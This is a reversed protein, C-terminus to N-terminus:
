ESGRLCVQFKRETEMLTNKVAAEVETTEIKSEMEIAASFDPGPFNSKITVAKLEMAKLCKLVEIMSEVADSPNEVRFKINSLWANKGNGTLKDQVEANKQQLEKKLGELDRLHNGATQVISNMNAKTGRPLLAHLEMCSQKMKKRRQRETLMHRYCQRDDVEKGQVGSGRISRLMSIMRRNVNSRNESIGSSEAAFGDSPSSYPLFASQGNAPFFARVDASPLESWLMEILFDEQLFLDM